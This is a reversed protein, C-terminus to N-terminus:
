FLQWNIPSYGLEMLHDNIIGFQNITNFPPYQRLPRNVSLGSPHSSILLKHKSTDILKSKDLADAGWLVFVKKASDNSLISIIHDTIQSWYPTHSKSENARVTLSVNLLMCGQCMWYQLNGHPQQNKIIKYKLQNAFINRLSPPINIGVPVSFACGMAEPVIIGNHVYANIYPDQGLIVVRTHQIDCNNLANFVLEPSPYIKVGHLMDQMLQTELAAFSGKSRLELIVDRWNNYVFTCGLHGVTWSSHTYTTKSLM